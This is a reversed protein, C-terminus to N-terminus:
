RGWPILLTSVGVFLSCLSSVSVSSIQSFYKIWPPRNFLLHNAVSPVTLSYVFATTTTSEAVAAREYRSSQHTQNPPRASPPISSYHIGNFTQSKAFWSTRQAIKWIVWLWLRRFTQSQCVMRPRHKQKGQLLDVNCERTEIVGVRLVVRCSSCFNLCSM